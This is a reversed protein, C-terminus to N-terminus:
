RRSRPSDEFANPAIQYNRRRMDQLENKKQRFLAWMQAAQEMKGARRYLTGLLFYTDEWDPDLEKARELLPLSRQDENRDYYIKGLRFYAPAYSPNIDIAKRFSQEAQRVANRRLLLIGIQLYAPTHRPDLILVRRFAAMAETDNEMEALCIGVLQLYDPNKPDLRQAKRLPELADGIPGRSMLTLGLLYHLRASAPHHEVAARLTAIAATSDGRKHEVAALHRFYEAKTPDLRVARTFSEEAERDRELRQFASGLADFFDAGENTAAHQARELPAIAENTRNLALLAMALYLQADANDPELTAARQLHEVSGSADGRALLLRGLSMEAGPLQPAKALAARYHAIASETDGLGEDAGALYVYIAPGVGLGKKLATRAGRFDGSHLLAIGLAASAAPFLPRLHLARLLKERAGKIDGTALQVTGLKYYTDAQMSNRALANELATRAATFQSQRLYITGLLNYYAWSNAVPASTATLTDLASDFRGMRLYLLAAFYKGQPTLPQPTWGANLAQDIASMEPTPDQPDLDFNWIGNFASDLGVPNTSCDYALGLLIRNDISSKAVLSARLETAAPRCQQQTLLALGSSFRRGFVPGRTSDAAYLDATLIGVLLLSAIQIPHCNRM